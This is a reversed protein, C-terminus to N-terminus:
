EGSPIADADQLIGITESRWREFFARTRPNIRCLLVGTNLVFGGPKCTFIVDIGEDAFFPRLDKRVLTDVDLLCVTEGEPQRRMAFEWALTKSSIRLIKDAAFDFKTETWRVSSHSKILAEVIPPPLDQHYVEVEAGPHTGQIAHLHALLMGAHKGGYTAVVFKM